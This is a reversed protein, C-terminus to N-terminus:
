RASPVPVCRWAVFGAAPDDPSVSTLVTLVAGFVESPFPLREGVGRVVTIGHARAINLMGPAPDVWIDLAAAFRGSGM